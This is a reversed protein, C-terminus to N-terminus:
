GREGAVRGGICGGLVKRKGDARMTKFVYNRRFMMREREHLFPPVVCLSADEGGIVWMTPKVTGNRM